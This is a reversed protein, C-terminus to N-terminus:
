VKKNQIPAYGILLATIIEPSCCLSEAMCVGTDIRGGFEEGMWAPMYCQTSNWTSHLLDCLDYITHNKKIHFIWFILHMFISLLNTTALAHISLHIPLSHKGPISHEEPIILPNPVPHPHHSCLMTFTSSAVLNFVKFHNM